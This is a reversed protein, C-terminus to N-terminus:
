PVAQLTGDPGRKLIVQKGKPQSAKPAVVKKKVPTVKKSSVPKRKSSRSHSQVTSRGGGSPPGWSQTTGADYTEISGDPNRKVVTGDSFRKTYPNNAGQTYVKGPGPAAAPASGGGGTEDPDDSDYVDVTGDANRRVTVGDGQEEAQCFAPIAVASLSLAVALCLGIKATSSGRARKM